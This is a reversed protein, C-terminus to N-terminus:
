NPAAKARRERVRRLDAKGPRNSPFVLSDDGRAHPKMEALVALAAGSLPVRHARGAKMRKAAVNWETADLDIESWRAGRVEGSRCAALITFRLAAAGVGKAGAIKAWAEPMERWPVARHHKVAALKARAPLLNELHGRWRAPTEGERLGRAAAWDLVSEIRGRLRSATEPKQTWVPELATLVLSTDAVDVPLSGFVPGAYIALTNAWQQRHKLNKWGDKHAEIYGDAAEAFTTVKAADQRARERRADRKDLPDIGKIRAKRRPDRAAERAEALTVLDIPGLGM